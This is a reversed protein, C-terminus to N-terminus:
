WFKAAFHCVLYIVGGVLSVVVLAWLAVMLEVVTFGLQNNRM